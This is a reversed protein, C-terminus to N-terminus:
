TYQPSEDTREVGIRNRSNNAMLYAPQEAGSTKCNVTAKVCAGFLLSPCTDM